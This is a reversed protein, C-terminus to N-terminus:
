VVIEWKVQMYYEKLQAAADLYIALPLYNINKSNLNGPWSVFCNRTEAALSKKPQCM